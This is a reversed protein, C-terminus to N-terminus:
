LTDRGRFEAWQTRTIEWLESKDGGSHHELSAYGIFTAGTKEKVRRSGANTAVNAVRMSEIGLEFFLWDNIATVAETMYGRGWFPEALWFGRNGGHDMKEKLRYEVLGIAEDGNEKATIVWGHADGAAMAPLLMDKLFTEAGNDPYPWPVARSLYQIINWNNFYKQIAPADAIAVPRMILRETELVSTKM